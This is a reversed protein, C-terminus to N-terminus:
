PLPFSLNRRGPITWLSGRMGVALLACEQVVLIVLKSTFTIWMGM